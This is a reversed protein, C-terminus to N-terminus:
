EAPFVAPSRNMMGKLIAFLEEGGDFYLERKDSIRPNLVIDGNEVVTIRAYGDESYLFLYFFPQSM